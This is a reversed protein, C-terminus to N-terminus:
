ARGEQIMKAKWLPNAGMHSSIIQGDASLKVYGDWKDADRAAKFGSSIAAVDNWAHELEWEEAEVIQPCHPPSDEVFLWLCRPRFGLLTEVGKWYIAMQALYQYNDIAKRCEDMTGYGLRCKKVDLVFRADASFRDLRGKLTLGNWDYVVSCESWGPAKLLAMAPHSHLTAVMAQIREHEAPSVFDDPVTADDPRHTGCFWRLNEDVCCGAKGCPQGKRDGTKLIAACSEAILVREAFVLPELLAVHVARGFKRSQTDENSIQGNFAAQGHLLSVGCWRVVGSNIARIAAYDAFPMDRYIGPQPCDGFNTKLDADFDLDLQDDSM